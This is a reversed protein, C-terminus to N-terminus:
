PQVGLLSIVFWILGYFILGIVIGVIRERAGKASGSTGATLMQYGSWMIMLIAVLVVYGGIGAASLLVTLYDWTGWSQCNRSVLVGRPCEGSTGDADATSILINARRNLDAFQDGYTTVTQKHITVQRRLESAEKASNTALAEGIFPINQFVAAVAELAAIRENKQKVAAQERKQLVIRSAAAGRLEEVRKGAAEKNIETVEEQLNKPLPNAPVAQKVAPAFNSDEACKVTLCELSGAASELETALEFEPTLSAYVPDQYYAETELYLLDASDLLAKAVDRFQSNPYWVATKNIEISVPDLTARNVGGECKASQDDCRLRNRVVLISQKTKENSEIRSILQSVLGKDSTTNKENELELNKETFQDAFNTLSVALSYIRESPYWVSTPSKYPTPKNLNTNTEARAIPTFSASFLTVLAFVGAFIKKSLVPQM